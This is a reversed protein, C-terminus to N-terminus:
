VRRVAREAREREQLRKLPIPPETEGVAQRVGEMLALDALAEQVPAPVSESGSPMFGEDRQRDRDRHGNRTM